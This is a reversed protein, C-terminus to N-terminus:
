NEKRISYSGPIQFLSPDPEGDVIERTEITSEGISDRVIDNRLNILFEPSLRNDEVQLYQNHDGYKHV